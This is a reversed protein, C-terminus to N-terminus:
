EEDEGVQSRLKYWGCLAIRCGPTFSSLESVFHYPEKGKKLEMLVLSNFKPVIATYHGDDGKVHLLGGYEPRWEASLNLVFAVAGKGKDRHAGLHDGVEQYSSLFTEGLVLEDIKLKSEIFDKVFTKLAKERFKCLFCNCDEAHDSTRRFRYTFLGNQMGVELKKDLDKRYAINRTKNTLDIVDNGPVKYSTVWQHEAMDLVCKRFYQADEKELFNEVVHLGM